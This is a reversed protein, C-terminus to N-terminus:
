GGNGDSGISGVQLEPDPLVHHGIHGVGYPADFAISFGWCGKLVDVALVTKNTVPINPGILGSFPSPAEGKPVPEKKLIMMGNQIVTDPNNFILLITDGDYVQYAGDLTLPCTTHLKATKVHNTFNVNFTYQTM